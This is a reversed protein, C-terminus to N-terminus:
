FKSYPAYSKAQVDLARQILEARDFDSYKDECSSVSAFLSLLFVALVLLSFKKM